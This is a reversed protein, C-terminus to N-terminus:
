DTGYGLFFQYGIRLFSITSAMRAHSNLNFAQARFSEFIKLLMDPLGNTMTRLTEIYGRMCLNLQGSNKQLETLIHKVILNRKVELTFHRAIGSESIDPIDEGTIILNGRPIYTQRLKMDTNLRARAGRDGYARTIQQATNAMKLVDNKGSAPHYDDIVTLVDKLDSGKKELANMTDRFNAPLTDHTFRGFFSLMLAALTSKHSGTIGYLFLIFNPEAGAQRFFENLPTLYTFAILPIMLEKPALHLLEMSTRYAEKYDEVPAPFSFRELGCDLEVSVDEAGIAGKGHLFIWSGNVNRWGTHTYVTCRKTNSQGASSIAYELHAKATNSPAINASFGWNAKLWAMSPFDKASVTVDHLFGTSKYAGIQFYM